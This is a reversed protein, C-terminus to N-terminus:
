PVRTRSMSQLSLLLTSVLHSDYTPVTSARAECKNDCLLRMCVCPCLFILM